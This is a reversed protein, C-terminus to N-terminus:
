SDGAKRGLYERIDSDLKRLKPLLELIQKSPKEDDANLQPKLEAAEKAMRQRHKENAKLLRLPGITDSEKKCDAFAKEAEEVRTAVGNTDLTPWVKFIFQRAEKHKESKEKWQEELDALHKELDAPWFKKDIKKYIAIAQGYEADKEFQKAREIQIKAERKAPDNEENQIKELLSIHQQLETESSRIEQLQGDIADFTPRENPALKLKNIEREVESREKSLQAHDDRARKLTEKVRALAEARKNPDATLKNIEEFLNNQVLKSMLVKRRLQRYRELGQTSEEDVPPVPLIVVRDDLLAVPIRAKRQAGSMVTIFAIRDFKGKDGSKATNVDKTGSTSVTLLTNEEGEFSRRRFQLQVPSQLETIGGKPTEEVVRLRLSGSRTGLLVARCGQVQMRPYRRFLRCVCVGDKPASEVQLYTWPVQQGPADGEVRVLGMIEGVKVWRGLDVGLAGGKLEVNVRSAADPESVVTGLFGADQGILLGAARPLYARDRTTERRVTPGSLGTLGDHQRAQIEYRTGSFDILVFHTKYESRERWSDLSKELGRALIDELRPHTRVVEVKALKGLAAQIGDKLDRELQKYLVETLLRHRALHLVIQLRYPERLENAASRGPVLLLCLPV